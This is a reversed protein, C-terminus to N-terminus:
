CPKGDYSRRQQPLEACNDFRSLENDFCSLMPISGASRAFEHPACGFHRKFDRCVNSESHTSKRFALM